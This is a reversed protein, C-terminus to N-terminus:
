WDVMWGLLDLHGMQAGLKARGLCCLWDAKSVVFEASSAEFVAMDEALDIKDKLLDRLGLEFDAMGKALDTLTRM